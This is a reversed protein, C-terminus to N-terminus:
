AGRVECRNEGQREWDSANALGVRMAIEIQTELRFRRASQTSMRQLISRAAGYMRTRPDKHSKM